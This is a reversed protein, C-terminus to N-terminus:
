STRSAGNTTGHTMANVPPRFRLHGPLSPVAPSGSTFSREPNRSIMRPTRTNESGIVSSPRRQYMCASAPDCYTAATFALAVLTTRTRAGRPAMTSSTPLGSARLSLASTTDASSCTTASPSGRCTSAGPLRIWGANRLHLPQRRHEANRRGLEVGLRRQAVVEVVSSGGRRLVGPAPGTRRQLRDRQDRDVVRCGGARLFRGLNRQAHELLLLQVRTHCRLDFLNAGVGGGVVGRGRLQDPVDPLDALGVDIRGLVRSLGRRQLGGGLIPPTM